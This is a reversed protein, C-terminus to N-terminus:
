RISHEQLDILKITATSKIKRHYTHIIYGGVEGIGSYHFNYSLDFYISTLVNYRNTYNIEALRHRARFLFRDTRDVIKFEPHDKIM